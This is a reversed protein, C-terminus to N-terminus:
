ILPLKSVVRFRNLVYISHSHDFRCKGSPEIRYKVDCNEEDNRSPPEIAEAKDLGRRLVGAYRYPGEDLSEQTLILTGATFEGAWPTRRGGEAGPWGGAELLLLVQLLASAKSLAM